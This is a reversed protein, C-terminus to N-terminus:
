QTAGARVFFKGRLFVKKDDGSPTVHLDYVLELDDGREQPFPLGELTTENIRITLVSLLVSTSTTMGPPVETLRGASIHASVTDTGSYSLRVGQASALTQTTLAILAAGPADRSTRVDMAFTGSTFDFGIFAVSKVFPTWRDAYIDVEAANM